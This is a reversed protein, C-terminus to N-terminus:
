CVVGKRAQLGKPLKGRHSFSEQQSVKLTKLHLTTITPINMGYLREENVEKLSKVTSKKQMWINM